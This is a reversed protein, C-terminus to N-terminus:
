EKAALEAWGFGCDPCGGNSRILLEAELIEARRLRAKYERGCHVCRLAMCDSETAGAEAGSADGVSDVQGSAEPVGPTDM